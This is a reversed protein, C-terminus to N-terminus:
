PTMSMQTQEDWLWWNKKTGLNHVFALLRLFFRLSAAVVLTFWVTQGAPIFLKVAISGSRIRALNRSMKGTVFHRHMNHELCCKFCHLKGQRVAGAGRCGQFQIKKSVLVRVAKDSFRSKQHVFGCLLSQTLAECGGSQSPQFAQQIVQTENVKARACTFNDGTSPSFILFCFSSYATQDQKTKPLSKWCKVSHYAVVKKPPTVGLHCSYRALGSRSLGAEDHCLSSGRFLVCVDRHRKM